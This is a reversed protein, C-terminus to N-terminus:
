NWYRTVTPAAERLRFCDRSRKSSHVPESGDDVDGHRWEHIIFPHATDGTFSVLAERIFRAGDTTAADARITFASKGGAAVPSAPANPQETLNLLRRLKLSAAAIQPAPRGSRVTIFPLAARFLDPPMEAAQDLQMASVLVSSGSNNPASSLSQPTAQGPAGPRRRVLSDAIRQGVKADRALGAFLRVLLERDATNLDVKGAEDDVSIIVDAADPMRCRLPFLATSPESLVLKLGLTIANDAALTARTTALATSAYKARYRAGTILATALVTILGLTWLTAVLAFGRRRAGSCPRRWIRQTSSKTM